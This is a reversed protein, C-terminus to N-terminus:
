FPLLYCSWIKPNFMTLVLGDDKQLTCTWNHPYLSIFSPEEKNIPM